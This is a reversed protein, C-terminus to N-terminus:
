QAILARIRAEGAHVRPRFVTQQARMSQRIDADIFNRAVIRWSGIQRLHPGVDQPAGRGFAYNGRVDGFAVSREPTTKLPMAILDGPEIEMAFSIAQATWNAV